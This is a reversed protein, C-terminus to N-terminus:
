RRQRFGQATCAARSVTYSRYNRGVQNMPTGAEKTMVLAASGDPAVRARGRNEWGDTFSFALSGDRLVRAADTEASLIEPSDPMRSAISVAYRGGTRSVRVSMIFDGLPIDQGSGTYGNMAEKLCYLGPAIPGAPPKGQAPVAVAIAIM